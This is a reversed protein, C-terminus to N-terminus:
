QARTLFFPKETGCHKNYPGGTVNLTEKDHYTLKFGQVRSGRNFHGLGLGWVM